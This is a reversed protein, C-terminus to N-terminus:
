ITVKDDIFSSCSYCQRSEYNDSSIYINNGTGAVVEKVACAFCLHLDHKETPNSPKVYYINTEAM